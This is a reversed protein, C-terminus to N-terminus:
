WRMGVLGEVGRTKWAVGWDQKRQVDILGHTYRLTVSKAHRAAPFEFGAQADLSLNAPKLNKTISRSSGSLDPPSTEMYMKGNMLWAGEPGAALMIRQSRFPRVAVLAPVALYHQAIRFEGTLAFPAPFDIKVRNGQEVYRLGTLFSFRSSVPVELSVGGALTMRWGPDWYDTIFSFDELHEYGLSSLNAGLELGLRVKAHAPAALTLVLAAVLTLARHNRSLVSRM